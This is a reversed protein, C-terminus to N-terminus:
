FDGFSSRYAGPSQHTKRKFLKSFSQAHEFGLEYAIESVTLDTTSLKEKAKEILKDHIHQQTNRGTLSRLLDSLYDASLHLEQALFSVRPFRNQFGNKENLCDDLLQELRMLLDHHVKKRTIFQREYFRKSYNLLLDIHSLIIDQTHHDIHLSEDAIKVFIDNISKEERESLHLAENVAYSFFGYHKISNALPHGALFDPHFFLVFGNGVSQKSADTESLDHSQLQQPATFSMMGKDFDYYQQGYRMNAQVNKKFSISYFGPIFSRLRHPDPAIDEVRVVSMLPHTPEPLSLLLHFQSISHIIQM